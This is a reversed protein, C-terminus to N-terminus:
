ITRRSCGNVLPYGDIWGARGGGQGGGQRLVLLSVSPVFNYYIKFLLKLLGLPLYLTLRTGTGQPPGTKPSLQKSQILSAVDVIRPLLSLIEGRLCRKGPRM